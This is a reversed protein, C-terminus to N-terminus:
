CRGKLWTEVAGKKEHRAVELPTGLSSSAKSDAGLHVLEKVADLHGLACAIHLPTFGDITRAETDARHSLLFRVAVVNDVEAAAHLPRFGKEDKGEVDAGAEVLLTLLAADSRTAVALPLPQRLRDATQNPDAGLDLLLKVVDPKAATIAIHIPRYGGGRSPTTLRHGSQVMARIRATDGGLVAAVLEGDSRLPRAARPVTYDVAACFLRHGFTSMAALPVGQLVTAGERSAPYPVRAGLAHTEILWHFGAVPDGFAALGCREALTLRTVCLRGEAVEVDALAQTDGSWSRAAAIRGQKWAIVWKDEMAEPIFLMGDPLTEEIAYELRCDISEGKMDWDFRDHHAPRWSIARAAMSPDQSTSLMKLNSMLNLIPVGFPNGPDEPGLWSPPASTVKEAPASGGSGLLERMRQWWSMLCLTPGPRRLASSGM